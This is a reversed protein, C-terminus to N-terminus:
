LLIECEPTLATKLNYDWSLWSLACNSCIQPAQAVFVDYHYTSSKLRNYAEGSIVVHYEVILGKLDYRLILAVKGRKPIGRKPLTIQGLMLGRKISLPKYEFHEIIVKGRM